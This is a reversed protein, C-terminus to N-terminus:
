YNTKLILFCDKDIDQATGIYTKNLTKVKIKEGLFSNKKWDNIIKWYERKELLKLYNEYNKLIKKIISNNDIKRNSIKSLSIAKNKLSFPIKNNSNIGIGIISKNNKTETLIGCLKKKKYILDNPWKIKIGKINIAKLASLCAIFTYFHSRSINPLVISIYIGDKSSSWGRKFRGKGKTQEDAIIVSNKEFSRAKKNTSDLSKFHYVKFM